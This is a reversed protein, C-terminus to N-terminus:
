KKKTTEKVAEEIAAKAAELDEPDPITLEAQAKRRSEKDEAVTLETEITQM